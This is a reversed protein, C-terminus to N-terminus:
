GPRTSPDPRELEAKVKEALRLLRENNAIARAREARAAETTKKRKV